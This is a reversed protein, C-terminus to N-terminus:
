KIFNGIVSGNALVLLTPILWLLAMLLGYGLPIIVIMRIFTRLTRNGQENARDISEKIERIKMDETPAGCQECVEPKNNEYTAGCYKCTYFYKMTIEKEKNISLRIM